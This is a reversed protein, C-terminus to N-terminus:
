KLNLLAEEDAEIDVPPDVLAKAANMDKFGSGTIVCCIRDDPTAQGSDIMRILGAITTASAPEAFIGADQAILREADLMEDDDVSLAFGGTERLAPLATYADFLIDDAIAGAITAGVTVPNDIVQRPSLNQDMAKVLPACASSQVGVLSPIRTIKGLRKLEKFGRWLAGLLGGGGVPVIIMDPLPDVQRTVEYAITKAGEVQFPNYIGATSLLHWGRKQCATNVLEFIRSSSLTNVKYHTAGHIRAQVLREDPANAPTFVRCKLGARASYSAASAAVNGSSIVAIEKAISLENGKIM